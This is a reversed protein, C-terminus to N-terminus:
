WRRRWPRWRRWCALRRGTEEGVRLASRAADLARQAQGLDLELHSLATLGGGELSREGLRRALGLAEECLSRATVLDGQARAVRALCLSAEGGGVENGLERAESLSLQLLKAAQALDGEAASLRALTTVPWRARERDGAKRYELLSDELLPRAGVLDGQLLAVEGLGLLATGIRVPGGVARGVALSQEYRSRAAGYEGMIEAIEGWRALARARNVSPSADTARAMAEDFWRRSESFNGRWVWYTQLLWILDLTPTPDGASIGWRLAARFNDEEADMRALWELQDPGRLQDDARTAMALYHGLHRARLRELDEHEACREAAFDRVSDLLRHRARGGHEGRVVLSKDVLGALLDLLEEENVGDGACVDEVADLGFGGSLVSLRQLLRREPEELLAYSWDIAARLARQRAPVDDTTPRRLLRFRDALREDIEAVSLVKRRSAALEIALPLGDLRRCIRAVVPADSPSVVLGPVAGEARALFLRTADYAELATPGADGPPIGMPPVPFVTEAPLGLPERSTALVAVAPCAELLAAAVRRCADLLHECNDLILLV